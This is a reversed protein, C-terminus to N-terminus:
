LLGEKATITELPSGERVPRAAPVTSATRAPARTTPGPAASCATRAASSTQGGDVNCLAAGASGSTEAISRTRVARVRRPRGRQAHGRPVARLDVREERPRARLGRLARLVARPGRQAGRDPCACAYLEVSALAVTEFASNKGSLLRVELPEDPESGEQLLGPARGPAARPARGPGIATASRRPTPSSNRASCAAAWTTARAADCLYDSGVFDPVARRRRPTTSRRRACRTAATARATASSARKAM